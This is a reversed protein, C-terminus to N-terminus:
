GDAHDEDDAVRDAQVDLIAAALQRALTNLESYSLKRAGLELAARDPNDRASLAFLEYLTAVTTPHTDVNLFGRFSFFGM